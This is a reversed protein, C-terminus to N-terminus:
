TNRPMGFPQYVQVGRGDAETEVYYARDPWERRIRTEVHQAVHLRHPGQTRLAASAIDQLLVTMREVDDGDLLEVGPHVEFGDQTYSARAYAERAPRM